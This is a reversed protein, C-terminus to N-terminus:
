GRAFAFGYDLEMLVLLVLMIALIVGTLAGALLTHKWNM